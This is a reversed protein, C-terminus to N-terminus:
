VVPRRRVENVLTPKDAMVRRGYRRRKPRPPEGKREIRSLFYEAEGNDPRYKVGALLIFPNGRKDHRNYGRVSMGKAAAAIDNRTFTEGGIILHEPHDERRRRGQPSSSIETASV